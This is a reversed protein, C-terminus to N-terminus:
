DTPTPRYLRREEIRSSVIASLRLRGLRRFIPKAEVVNRKADALSSDRRVYTAEELIIREM